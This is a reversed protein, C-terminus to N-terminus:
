TAEERHAVQDEVDMKARILSQNWKDSAPGKICGGECVNVEFFSHQIDGKKLEDFLEM